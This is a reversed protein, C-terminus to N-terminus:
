KEFFTLENAPAKRYLVKAEHTQYFMVSMDLPDFKEALRIPSLRRIKRFIAKAGM